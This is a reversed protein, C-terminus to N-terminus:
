SNEPPWQRSTHVVALIWVVDNDVRHVLRYSSHPIMERTGIIEGERGAFPFHSIQTAIKNFQRDIKEAAAFDEAAIYDIINWRDQEAEPTWIVKM